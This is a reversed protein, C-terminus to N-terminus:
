EKQGMNYKTHWRIDFVGGGLNWYNTEAISESEICVRLAELGNLKLDKIQDNEAEREENNYLISELGNPLKFFYIKGLRQNQSTEENNLEYCSMCLVQLDPCWAVCDTHLDAIFSFLCSM